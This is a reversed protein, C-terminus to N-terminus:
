SRMRAGTPDHAPLAQIMAPRLEGLIEVQFANSNSVLGADIYGM